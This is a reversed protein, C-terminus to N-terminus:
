WHNITKGTKNESSKNASSNRKKFKKWIVINQFRPNIITQLRKGFDIFM